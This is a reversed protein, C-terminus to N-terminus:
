SSPMGMPVYPLIPVPLLIPLADEDAGHILRQLTLMTIKSSRHKMWQHSPSALFTELLFAQVMSIINLSTTSELCFADSSLKM